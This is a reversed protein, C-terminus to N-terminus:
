AHAEAGAAPRIVDVYVERLSGEFSDAVNRGSERATDRVWDLVIRRSGITLASRTVEGTPSDDVVEELATLRGVIDHRKAPSGNQLFKGGVLSGTAIVLTLAVVADIHEYLGRVTAIPEDATRTPTATTM